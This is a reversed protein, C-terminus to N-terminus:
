KCRKCNRGTSDADRWNVLLVGCKMKAVMGVLFQDLTHVIGGRRNTLRLDRDTSKHKIM